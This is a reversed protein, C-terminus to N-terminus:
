IYGKYAYYLLALYEHLIARIHRVKVSSRNGFFISNEVPGLCVRYGSLVKQSIRSVRLMHYPSSVIIVSSFGNRKLVERLRVLHDYTSTPNKELLIKNKPIGLEIALAKMIEVEQFSYSYGSLFLLRDGYGSFYLEAGKKVREQYGEGALGSEGVGAGLVAILDSKVVPDVRRLPEAIWWILPSHFILLYCGAAIAVTKLVSKRANHYLSILNERWHTEKQELKKQLAEEIYRSMQEIKITWTNKSAAEMRLRKGEKNQNEETEAKLVTRLRGSFEELTSAVEVINGHQQNFTVVEPLPTSIVPKGIALYENLKTPYVNETYSTIKYPILCADFHRVYKPLEERPKQGLFFINQEEMLEKVDIQIPGIFVFSCDSHRRAIGKVLEQDVWRHIGGIYGVLPSKLGAMEPPKGMKEARSRNFNDTNVGFPFSYVNKNYRNCKQYLQESTVFVLDANRLLEQETWVIRKAFKSSKSFDDICYYVIHKPSIKKLTSLVVGTPLFVWAIPGSFNISSMWRKLARGMIRSNIWRAWQSYPFPFVVPSYIYLNEAEQRIGGIGKKWNSLRRIVRPMDALTARRVGTNEVFLVRNGNNALTLMIEQHGQWIFDWDISSFCIIDQGKLM